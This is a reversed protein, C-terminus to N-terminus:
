KAKMVSRLSVDSRTLFPAPIAPDLLITSHVDIFDLYQFLGQSTYGMPKYFTRTWVIARYLRGKQDYMETMLMQLTEKDFYFVRKSYIYNRDLQKAEVVWMPRRELKVNKLVFKEKSDFYESGDMQHAPVLFEREDLVSYEYPFEDPNMAQTFGDADDNAIDQGVAQDQKDSSSLKRVRRLFNVYALVSVDKRPNNYGIFFYVNGYFDRPDLVRYLWAYQEYNKEATADLYGFPPFWARGGLRLLAVEGKGVHDIKFNKNVGYLIEVILSDEGSLYGRQHNYLIQMAKHEGSPRPFPYANVNGPPLYGQDDQEIKGINNKTAEAIPINWYYQRTPVIEFETFNGAHNPGAAGPANFKQYLLPPMLEKFPYKERDELTYRGPQIEPCTKNVVEPAKFGVVEAWLAKMAGEDYTVKEWVEDPIFTKLYNTEKLYPRPDDLLSKVEAFESCTFTYRDFGWGPGAMLVIVLFGAVLYTCRRM